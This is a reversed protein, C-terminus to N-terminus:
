WNQCGCGTTKPARCQVYTRPSAPLRASISRCVKKPFKNRAVYSSRKSEFRCYVSCVTRKIYKNKSTRHPSNLTCKTPRQHHATSEKKTTQNADRRDGDGLGQTAHTISSTSTSPVESAEVRRGPPRLLRGSRFLLCSTSSLIYITHTIKREFGQHQNWM